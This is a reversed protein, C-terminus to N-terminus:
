KYLAGWCIEGVLIVKLQKVNRVSPVSAKMDFGYNGGVRGSAHLLEAGLHRMKM